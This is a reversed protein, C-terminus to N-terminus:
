LSKKRAKHKLLPLRKYVETMITVFNEERLKEDNRLQLAGVIGVLLAGGIAVIPLAYWSVFNTIAALTVLVLVASFIYFSGSIWPNNNPMIKAKGVFHELRAAMNSLDPLDIAVSRVDAYISEVLMFDPTDYDKDPYERHWILGIRVNIESAVNALNYLRRCHHEKVEVDLDALIDGIESVATHYHKLAYAVQRRFDQPVHSDWYGSKRSSEVRAEISKTFERVSELESVLDTNIDDLTQHSYDTM